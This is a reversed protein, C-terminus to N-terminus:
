NDEGGEGFIEKYMQNLQYNKYPGEVYYTKFKKGYFTNGKEDRYNGVFSIFGIENDENLLYEALKEIQVQTLKLEEKPYKNKKFM